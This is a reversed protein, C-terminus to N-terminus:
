FVFKQLTEDFYNLSQQLLPGPTIENNSANNLFNLVEVQENSNCFYFHNNHNNYQLSPINDSISQYYPIISSSFDILLYNLLRISIINLNQFLFKSFDLALFSLTVNSVQISPWYLYFVEFLFTTTRETNSTSLQLNKQKIDDDIEEIIYNWIPFQEYNQISTKLLSLDSRCLYGLSNFLWSNGIMKSILSLKPVLQPIYFSDRLLHNFVNQSFQVKM